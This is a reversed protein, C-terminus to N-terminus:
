YCGRERERVCVCVCVYVHFTGVANLNDFSLLKLTYRPPHRKALNCSVGEGEEAPLRKEDKSGDDDDDKSLQERLTRM